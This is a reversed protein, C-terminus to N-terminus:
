SCNLWNWAAVVNQDFIGFWVHSYKKCFDSYFLVFEPLDLAFM